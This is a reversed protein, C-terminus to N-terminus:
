KLVSNELMSGLRSFTKDFYMDSINQPSFELNRYHKSVYSIYSFLKEIINELFSNPLASYLFIDALSTYGYFEL